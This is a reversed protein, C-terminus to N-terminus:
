PTPFEQPTTQNFAPNHEPVDPQPPYPQVPVQHPQLESRQEDQIRRAREDQDANVQLQEAWAAHKPDEDEGEGAPLMGSPVGFSQAHPHSAESTEGALEEDSLLGTGFAGRSREVRAAESRDAAARDGEARDGEAQPHAHQAHSPHQSSGEHPARAPQGAQPQAPKQAQAKQAQAKQADDQEAM